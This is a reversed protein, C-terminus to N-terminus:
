NICSYDVHEDCVDRCRWSRWRGGARGNRGSSRWSGKCLEITRHAPDAYTGVGRGAARVGCM